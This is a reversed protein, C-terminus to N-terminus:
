RIDGTLAGDEFQSTDVRVFADGSRIWELLDDLSGDLHGTVDDDTITEAALVGSFRGPIHDGSPGDHPYLWAVLDEPPPNEPIGGIHLRIHADTVGEVDAVVLRYDLRNEDPGVDFLATGRANTDAGRAPSLTARFRGNSASGVVGTAGGGLAVGSGVLEVFSRRTTDNPLM